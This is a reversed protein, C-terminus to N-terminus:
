IHILSLYVDVINSVAPDVRTDQGAFHKYQFNISSRGRRGIYDTSTSLTNTTSSYKKVVNEAEDYFYFLQNDDYITTALNIDAEKESVIFNSAAYPRYREINNYSIYKEFFVFKLTPSTTPEVFIDFLDPNDVVGDDDSDFFGVKVKRNDQFGDAETVTSDRICM